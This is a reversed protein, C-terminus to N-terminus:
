NMKRNKMEARSFLNSFLNMGMGGSQIEEELFLINICDDPLLSIIADATENYPKLQELLIIGTNDLLVSAEIAIKLMRGHVIIVNKVSRKKNFNSRAICWSSDDSYFGSVIDM